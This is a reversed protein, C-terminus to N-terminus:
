ELEFRLILNSTESRVKTAALMLNVKNGGIEDNVMIVM